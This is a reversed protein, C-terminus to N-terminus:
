RKLYSGEILVEFQKGKKGILTAPECPLDGFQLLEDCKEVSLHSPDAIMVAISRRWKRKSREPDLLV